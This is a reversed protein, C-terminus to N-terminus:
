MDTVPETFPSEIWTSLMFISYAKPFRIECPPRLAARKRQKRSCGETMNLPSHFRLALENPTSVNRGQVVTIEFSSGERRCGDRM